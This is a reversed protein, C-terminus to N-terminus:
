RPQMTPTYNELAFHARQHLLNISGTPGNRQKAINVTLLDDKRETDPEEQKHLLLVVDADQEIGGSDRLDALKPEREDADRNLQSLVIIPINLEVALHKLQRTIRGIEDNRTEYRTREGDILQLYDIVALCLGKETKLRRANACISFVTQGPSDDFEIPLREIEAAADSLRRADDAKLKGHAVSWSDLPGVACAMREVLDTRSMELSSFFVPLGRSATRYTSNGALISKGVSPRGGIVILNRQRYGVILNDLAHWGTPIIDKRAEDNRAARRRDVEVLWERTAEIASVTASSRGTRAISLIRREADDLLEEAPGAMSSADQAIDNCTHILNRLVAKQRILEAHQVANGSSGPAADWLDTLYEYGGADEFFKREKLWESITIIDAPKRQEFALSVMAEFIKQHGFVYFDEARVRYVLDPITKNDRLMSGLISREAERNHPPLRKPPDNM